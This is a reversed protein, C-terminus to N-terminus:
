FLRKSIPRRNTPIPCIVPVESDYGVVELYGEMPKGNLSFDRTDYTRGGLIVRSGDIREPIKMKYRETPVPIVRENLGITKSTKLNEITIGNYVMKRVEM